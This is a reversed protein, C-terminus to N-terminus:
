DASRASGAARDATAEGLRAAERFAEAARDVAAAV